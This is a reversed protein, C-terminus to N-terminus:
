KLVFGRTFNDYHREIIETYEGLSRHHYKYWDIQIEHRINADEDWWNKGEDWIIEYYSDISFHVKVHGIDYMFSMSPSPIADPYDRMVKKHTKIADEQSQKSLNYFVELAIENKTYDDCEEILNKLRDLKQNKEDWEEQDKRKRELYKENEMEKEKEMIEFKEETLNQQKIVKKLLQISWFICRVEHYKNKKSLSNIDFALSNYRNVISMLEDREADTNKIWTEVDEININNKKIYEIYVDLKHTKTIRISKSNMEYWYNIIEIYDDKTYKKPKVVKEKKPKPEKAVKEKKPKSKPIYVNVDELRMLNLEQEERKQEEQKIWLDELERRKKMKPIYFQEVKPKPICVNVDELRMLDSEHEERKQEEQELKYRLNKSHKKTKLHATMSSKKDTAYGCCECNHKMVKSTMTRKKKM